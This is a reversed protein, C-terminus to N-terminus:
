EDFKKDDFTSRWFMYWRQQKTEKMTWRLRLDSYSENGEFIIKGTKIKDNEQINFVVNRVLDKARGDFLTSEEVPIELVPNIEANLYGKEEYLEKIKKATEHLTNPRLRQGKSLSVEDEFKRDKIKKNGDYSLDGLIFNEKVLITLSLGEDTEDDYRLQIDQFLGLQWLRKIARPFEAQSITQGERLGATFIITNESTVANGEVNVSVLTIDAPVGQAIGLALSLIFIFLKKM